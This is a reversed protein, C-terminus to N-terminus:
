RKWDYIGIGDANFASVDEIPEGEFPRIIRRAAAIGESRKALYRDMEEDNAM